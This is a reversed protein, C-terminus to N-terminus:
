YQGFVFPYEVITTDNDNQIEPFKWRKVTLVINKEFVFDNLDSQVIKCEFVEGKPNIKFRVIVGGGLKNGQRIYNNYEKRITNSNQDIGRNISARGRGGIIIQGRIGQYDANEASDAYISEDKATTSDSDAKNAAHKEGLIFEVALLPTIIILIIIVVTTKKNV